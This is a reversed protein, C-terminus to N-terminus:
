NPKLNEYHKRIEPLREVYWPQELLYALHRQYAAITEDREALLAKQINEPTLWHRNVYTPETM